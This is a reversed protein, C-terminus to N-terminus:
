GEEPKKFSPLPVHLPINLEEELDLAKLTSKKLIMNFLFFKFDDPMKKNKWQKLIDKATKSDMSFLINGELRIKVFDPDYKVSYIFEAEIIEEKAKIPSGKLNMPKIEPVDIETNIKYGKTIQKLSEISIKTFNFGVVRMM